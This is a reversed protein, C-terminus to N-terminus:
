FPVKGCFALKACVGHQPTQSTGFPCRLLATGGKLFPNIRWPCLRPQAAHSLSEGKVPHRLRNTRQCTQSQLNRLACVQRCFADDRTIWGHLSKRGQAGAPRTFDVQVNQADPAFLLTSFSGGHRAIPFKPVSQAPAVRLSELAELAIVARAKVTEDFSAHSTRLGGIIHRLLSKELQPLM